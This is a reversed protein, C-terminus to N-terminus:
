CGEKVTTVIAPGVTPERVLQNYPVGRAVLVARSAAILKLSAPRFERVEEGLGLDMLVERHESAIDTDITRNGRRGPEVVIKWGRGADIAPGLPTVTRRIIAEANSLLERLRTCEAQSEGYAEKLAVIEAAVQELDVVEGTLPDTATM